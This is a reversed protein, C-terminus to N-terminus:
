VPFGQRAFGFLAVVVFVIELYYLHFNSQLVKRFLDVEGM